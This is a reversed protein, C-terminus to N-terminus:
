FFHIACWDYVPCVARIKFRPVLLEWVSGGVPGFCSLTTGELYERFIPICCYVATVIAYFLLRVFIVIFCFSFDALVPRVSLLAVVAQILFAIHVFNPVNVWSCEPLFQFGLTLIRQSKM